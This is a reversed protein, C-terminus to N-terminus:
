KGKLLNEVQQGAISIDLAFKPPMEGAEENGGVVQAVTGTPIGKVKSMAKYLLVMNYNMTKLLNQLETLNLGGPVGMKPQNTKFDELAKKLGEMEPINVVIKKEGADKAEEEAKEKIDPASMSKNNQSAIVKEARSGIAAKGANLEDIMDKLIGQNPDLERSKIIMNEYNGASEAHVKAKSELESATKADGEDYAEQASARLSSAASKHYDAKQKYEDEKQYIKERIPASLKGREFQGGSEVSVERIDQLMKEFNQSVRGMIAAIHEGVNGDNIEKVQAKMEGEYKKAEAAIEDTARYQKSSVINQTLGEDLAENTVGATHIREHTATVKREKLDYNMGSSNVLDLNEPKYNTDQTKALAKELYGVTRDRYSASKMEKGEGMENPKLAKL